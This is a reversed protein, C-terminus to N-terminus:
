DVLRRFVRMDARVVLKTSSSSSSDSQQPSCYDSGHLISVLCVHEFAALEWLFFEVSFAAVHLSHKGAYEGRTLAWLVIYAVLAVDTVTSVVRYWLFGVRSAAAIGHLLGRTFGVVLAFVINFEYGAFSLMGYFAVVNLCGVLFLKRSGFAWTFLVTITWLLAHSSGFMFVGGSSASQLVDALYIVRPTRKGAFVNTYALSFMAGFVLVFCALYGLFVILRIFRKGPFVLRLPARPPKSSSSSSSSESNNNNYM